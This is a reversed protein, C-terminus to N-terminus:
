EEKAYNLIGHVVYYAQEITLGCMVGSIDVRNGNAIYYNVELKGERAIREDISQKQRKESESLYM